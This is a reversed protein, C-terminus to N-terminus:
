TLYQKSLGADIEELVLDNEECQQAQILIYQARSSKIKSLAWASHARIIPDSDSFLSKELMSISQPDALNGLVVAANRLLGSHKSRSIPSDAYKESFEKTSIGMLQICDLSKLLDGSALDEEHIPAAIRQNWPCVMQCIDCGFLWDKLRHRLDIPIIGRNEITLYSICSNSNITRNPDICHTPCADICRHCSGCRDVTFPLDPEVEIDLFLEAIFFFSGFRPNILM